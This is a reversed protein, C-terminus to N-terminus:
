SAPARRAKLIVVPDVPVGVMGDVTHVPTLEIAEVVDMGSVVHGFVAYGPKGPKADLTPNDVVNIYFQATASNPDNQRAMAITGKNNRLGNSSENVIPSGPERSHMSADYGGAQIVFGAEVRHFILGDYFGDDVYKLFNAVTVPAKSADLELEIAGRNTELIVRPAAAAAKTEAGSGAAALSLVVACLASSIRKTM